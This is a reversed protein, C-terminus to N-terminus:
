GAARGGGGADPGLPQQPHLPVFGPPLAREGRQLHQCGLHSDGRLPSGAQGCIAAPRGHRPFPCTPIAEYVSRQMYENYGESYTTRLSEQVISDTVTKM